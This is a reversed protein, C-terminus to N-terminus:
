RGKIFHHFILWFNVNGKLKDFANSGHNMTKLTHCSVIYFIYFQFVKLNDFHSEYKPRDSAHWVLNLRSLKNMREYIQKQKKKKGAPLDQCKM